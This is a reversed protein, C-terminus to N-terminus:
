EKICRVACAKSRRTRNTWTVEGVYNFDLSFAYVISASAYWHQGLDGVCCLSGDESDRYGSAPYWITSTSSQNGFRETLDMGKNVGDYSCNFLPGLWDVRWVGNESGDPVRWGHPCPDYISKASSSSSWRTNNSSFLGTYYWDYNSDNLTIYTTPHATAYSITGTSSTSEVASPWTITSKAEISSSISSSGLFPDKRGWQYLLGLSGVAGTRSNTAGLNRDMMYCSGENYRDSSPKYTFWIHWSWLIEGNADKAAIVANGTKFNSLEEGVQFVIYGNKYCVAKILDLCEPTESTGYTEWLISASTVSGVSTASNGKVPRFKYCGNRSVIYCNATATRSLDEADNLNLSLDQQAYPHLTKFSGAEEYTTESRVKVAVCYDYEMNPSLNNLNITFTQSNDFSPSVKNADAINFKGKESYYIEVSTFMLHAAPINIYGTFTVSNYTVNSLTYTLGADKSKVIVECEATKGGDYTQAIVSANGAKIAKVVGDSVIAISPNSSMWLVNKNTANSPMVTASVVGMEGEFLELMSPTINIHRM